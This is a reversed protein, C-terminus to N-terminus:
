GTAVVAAVMAAVCILTIRRRVGGYWQPITEAHASLGDWAGVAAFLVALVVFCAPAPLFLTAWAAIMVAISILGGRLTAPVGPAILLGFRYGAVFTLLMCASACLLVIIEERTEAATGPILLWVTLALMPALALYSLRRVSGRARAENHTPDAREPEGM